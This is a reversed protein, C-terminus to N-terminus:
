RAFINEFRLLFEYIRQNSIVRKVYERTEAYPIQDLTEGDSSYRSDNLWDGVRGRGANYAALAVELDGFYAKLTSLYYTGLRINIEPDLIQDYSFDDLGARPAIWYATEEMIQMLGSAGARSVVGVRFRSEAHIVACVLQPDLDFEEAYRNIIDVHRLPYYRDAFMVAGAAAIIVAALLIAFVVATKRQRKKNKKQM